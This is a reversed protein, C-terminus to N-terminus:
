NPSFLHHYSQSSFSMRYFLEPLIEPIWSSGSRM